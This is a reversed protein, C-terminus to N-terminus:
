VKIVAEVEVVVYCCTFDNVEYSNLIIFGTWGNKWYLLKVLISKYIKRLVKILQFFATM